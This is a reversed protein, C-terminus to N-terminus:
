FRLTTSAVVRKMYAFRSICRGGNGCMGGHSGDANYYKMLFDAKNSEELLLLGDAGVGRRRDCISRALVGPETITRVRHTRIKSAGDTISHHHRFFTTSTRPNSGRDSTIVM